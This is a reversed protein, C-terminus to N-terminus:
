FRKLIPETGLVSLLAGNLALIHGVVLGAAVADSGANAPAYCVAVLLAGMAFLVAGLVPHENM